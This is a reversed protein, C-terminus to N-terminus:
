KNVTIVAIFLCFNYFEKVKKNAYRQDPTVKECVLSLAHSKKYINKLFLTLMLAVLVQNSNFIQNKSVSILM